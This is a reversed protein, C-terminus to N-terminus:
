CIAAACSPRTRRRRSFRSWHAHRCEEDQTIELRGLNCLVPGASSLPPPERSSPPSRPAGVRGPAWAGRPARRPVRLIAVVLMHRPVFRSLNYGAIVARRNRSCRRPGPPRPATAPCSLRTHRRWSLTSLGLRTDHSSRPLVLLAVRRGFGWAGARRAPQCRSDSRLGARRGLCGARNGAPLVSSLAARLTRRPPGVHDGSRRGPNASRLTRLAACAACFLPNRPPEHFACTSSSNAAAGVGQSAGIRHDAASTSRGSCSRARRRRAGAM